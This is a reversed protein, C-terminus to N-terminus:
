TPHIVTCWPADCSTNALSIVFTTKSARTITVPSDITDGAPFIVGPWGQKEMSRVENLCECHQQCDRVYAYRGVELTCFRSVVGFIKLTPAMKILLGKKKPPPPSKVKKLAILCYM